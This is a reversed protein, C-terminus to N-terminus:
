VRYANTFQLDSLGSALESTLRANECFRARYTAALAEFGARRRAEVDQPAGDVTFFRVDDYEYFPVLSAFRRALRPHGSLSRHKALTLELRARLAPASMALIAGSAALLALASNVTIRPPRDVGSANCAFSM